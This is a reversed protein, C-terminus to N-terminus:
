VRSGAAGAAVGAEFGVERVAAAAAAVDCCSEVQATFPETAFADEVRLHRQRLAASPMM